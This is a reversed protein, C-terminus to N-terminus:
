SPQPGHVDRYLAHEISAWTPNREYLSTLQDDTFWDGLTHNYTMTNVPPLEFVARRREESVTTVKSIFEIFDEKLREMRLWRDITLRGNDTFRQIMQDAIDWEAMESRTPMPRPSFGPAGRALQHAWSLIWSPLRRINLVLSRDAIESQRDPFFSHKENTSPDDAFVVTEPFLLFMRLTADGATKPLHGWAFSRGIVM